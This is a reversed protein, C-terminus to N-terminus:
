RAPAPFTRIASRVSGRLERVDVALHWQGMHPVELSVQSRTVLGGVYRHQRGSRYNQFNSSDMLRVNAASGQLTVEVISGSEMQGLAYHTFNM